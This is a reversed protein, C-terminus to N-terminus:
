SNKLILNEKNMKKLEFFLLIMGLSFSLLDAIIASYLMTIVSSTISAIIIISPVFFAVDRSFSLLTSKVSSGMSQLLIALSKTICTFIIGRLFIRICYIAYELYSPSNVNGFIMIIEKPFLEFLLFFVTGIVLNILLIYKITQKVRKKNKAGMNYGIIPMGGLSIGIVISIVIGFVKMSIGIVALPTIVGYPTNDSSLTLYGYQNVLQNAVTIIIVISIQTIFSALGLSLSKKIININFKLASRLYLVSLIFTIFQSIITALAAGLINLHFCFIFIPDLIINIIAGLFTTIMAYLPSGDSRISANLGQGIMYFPLGCLIIFLYTRAYEYCEKESPNAGFLLLIQEQFIFGFLTLVLSIIILLILGNGISKSAKDEEKAGLFLNFSASFGDGILLAFALAIVTFPYVINTAANGSTGAESWGIFIQDVINYLSAVLMSIVCPLAFKRLLFSIKDKELDLTNKMFEDGNMFFRLDEIPSVCSCCM